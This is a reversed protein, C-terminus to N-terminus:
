VLGSWVLASPLDFSMDLCILLLLASSGPGSRSAVDSTWRVNYFSITTVVLSTTFLLLLLGFPTVLVTFMDCKTNLLPWYRLPILFRLCTVINYSNGKNEMRTAHSVGRTSRNINLSSYGLYNKLIVKVKGPIQTVFTFWSLPSIM